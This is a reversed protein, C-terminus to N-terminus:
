QRSLNKLPQEAAFMGQGTPVQEYVVEHTHLTPEVVRQSLHEEFHETVPVVRERHIIPQIENVVSSVVTEQVLPPKEILGSQDAPPAEQIHREIHHVVNKDVERHVVPQVEVIRDSRIKEDIVPAHVITNGENFSADANSTINSQTKINKNKNLSM